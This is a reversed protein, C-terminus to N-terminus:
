NWILIEPFSHPPRLTYNPPASISAACLMPLDVQDWDLLVETTWPLLMFILKSGEIKRWIEADTGLSETSYQIVSAHAKRNRICAYIVAYAHEKQVRKTIESVPSQNTALNHVFACIRFHICSNSSSTHM